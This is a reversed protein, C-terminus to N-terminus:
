LVVSVSSIFYEAHIAIEQEIASIVAPRLTSVIHAFNSVDKLVFNKASLGSPVLNALQVSSDHAVFVLACETNSSGSTTNPFLRPLVNEWDVGPCGGRNYMNRDVLPLVGMEDCDLAPLRDSRVHLAIFKTQNRGLLMEDVIRRATEQILSTYTFSEMMRAFIVDGGGPSHYWPNLFPLEHLLYSWAQDVTVNTYNRLQQRLQTPTEFQEDMSIFFDYEPPVAQKQFPVQQVHVYKTISSLNWLDGHEYTSSPDSLVGTRAPQYPKLQLARGTLYAVVWAKMASQRQNNWGSFSTTRYHVFGGTFPLPFSRSQGDDVAAGTINKTTRNKEDVGSLSFPLVSSKKQFVVAAASSYQHSMQDIDLVFAAATITLIALCLKKVSAVASGGSIAHEPCSRKRFNKIM